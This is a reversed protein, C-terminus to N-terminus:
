DSVNQLPCAQLCTSLRIDLKRKRFSRVTSDPALASLLPAPGCLLEAGERLECCGFHLAAASAETWAGTSRWRSALLRPLPSREHPCASACVELAHESRLAPAPPTGQLSRARIRLLASDARLRVGTFTRARPCGRSPRCHPPGLPPSRNASHPLFFTPTPPHARLPPPLRALM